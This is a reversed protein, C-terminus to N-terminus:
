TARDWCQPVPVLSFSQKLSNNVLLGVQTLSHISFISLTVEKERNCQVHLVEEINVAIKLSMQM